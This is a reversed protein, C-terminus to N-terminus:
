LSWHILRTPEVRVAQSFEKNAEEPIWNMEQFDEAYKRVYTPRLAQLHPDDSLTADGELMVVNHGNEATELALLIQPNQRINQVKRSDPKTFFFVCGSEQEWL